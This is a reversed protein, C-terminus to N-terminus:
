CNELIALIRHKFADLSIKSNVLVRGNKGIKERLREDEILLSVKQAIDKPNELKTLIANDKELLLNLNEKLKGTVVPKEMAMAEFMGSRAVAHAKFSSDFAGLYIDCLSLYRQIENFDVWPIFIVKQNQILSLNYATKNCSDYEPGTGVLILKVKPYKELLHPIMQIMFNVGHTQAVFCGHYMLIIEKPNVGIERSTKLDKEMPKFKECDVFMYVAHIKKLPLSYKESYYSRYTESDVILADTLKCAIKEIFLIFQYIFDKKHTYFHREAQSYWMDYVVKKGLLKSIIIIPFTITTPPEVLVIDSSIISAIIRVIFHATKSPNQIYKRKLIIAKTPYSGRLAKM